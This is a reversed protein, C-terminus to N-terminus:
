SREGTIGRGISKRIAEMDHDAVRRAYSRFAGFWEPVPEGAVTDATGTAPATSSTAMGGDVFGHFLEEAVERVPRGELASKAKVRRYLDDPIEITVKM